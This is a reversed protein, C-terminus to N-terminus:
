GDPKVESNILQELFERTQPEGDCFCIEDDGCTAFIVENQSHGEKSTYALDWCKGTMAYLNSRLWDETEQKAPFTRPNIRPRTVM